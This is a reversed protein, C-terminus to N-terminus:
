VALRTLLRFLTLRSSLCLAVGVAACCMPHGEWAHGEWAGAIDTEVDVPTVNYQLPTPVSGHPGPSTSSVLLGGQQWRGPPLSGGPAPYNVSTGVRGTDFLEFHLFRLHPLCVLSATLLVSSASSAVEPACLNGPRLPWAGTLVRGWLTGRRQARVTRRLRAFQPQLDSPRHRPRLGDSNPEGGAALRLRGARRRGPPCGGMAMHTGQSAHPTSGAGAVPFDGQAQPGPGAPDCVRFVCLHPCCCLSHETATRTQPEVGLARANRPPLALHSTAKCRDDVTGRSGRQM